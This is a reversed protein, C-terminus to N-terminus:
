HGKSLQITGAHHVIAGALISLGGAIAFGAAVGAAVTDQRLHYIVKGTGDPHPSSVQVTGPRENVEPGRIHTHFGYALLLLVIGLVFLVIQLAVNTALRM